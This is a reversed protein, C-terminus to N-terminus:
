KVAVNELLQKRLKFLTEFIRTAQAQQKVAESFIDEYKATENTSFLLGETLDPCVLVHPQDDGAKQCIPCLHNQYKKKFNLKVDVM